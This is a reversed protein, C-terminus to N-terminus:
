NEAEAATLAARYDDANMRWPTVGLAALRECIALGTVDFDGHYHLKAGAELLQTLLLLVTSSPQGNTAVIPRTAKSQAAAEVIRPNEVVLIDTSRPVLAPHAELAFRSLHLPVGLHVA